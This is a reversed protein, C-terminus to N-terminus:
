LVHHYRQHKADPRQALLPCSIESDRLADNQDRGPKQSKRDKKLHGKSKGGDLGVRKETGTQHCDGLHVKDVKVDRDIRETGYSASHYGSCCHKVDSKTDHENANFVTDAQCKLQWM